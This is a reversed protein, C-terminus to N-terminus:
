ALGLLQRVLMVFAAHEEIFRISALMGLTVAVAAPIVLGAFLRSERAGEQAAHSVEERLAANAGTRPFRHWAQLEAERLARLRSRNEPTVPLRVSSELPRPNRNRSLREGSARRALHQSPTKGGASKLEVIMM